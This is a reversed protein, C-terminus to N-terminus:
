SNYTDKLFYDDRSETMLVNKDLSDRSIRTISGRGSYPKEAATQSPLADRSTLEKEAEALVPAIEHNTISKYDRLYKEKFSSLNQDSQTNLFDSSSTPNKPLGDGLESDELEMKDDPQRGFLVKAWLEFGPAIRKNTENTDIKKSLVELMQNRLLNQRTTLHQEIIDRQKPNNQVNMILTTRKIWYLECSHSIVRVLYHMGPNTEPNNEDGFFSAENLVLLRCAAGRSKPKMMLETRLNLPIEEKKPFHPPPYVCIELQGKLVFFISGLHEREKFIDSGYPPYIKNKGISDHFAAIKPYDWADFLVIRSLFGVKQQKFAKIERGVSEIYARGDMVLLKAHTLAVCNATRQAKALVGAEGFFTNPKITSLMNASFHERTYKSHNVTTVGIEGELVYYVSSSADGYKVIIDLEKYELLRCNQALYVISEMPIKDRIEKINDITELFSAVVQHDSEARSQLPSKLINYVIQIIGQDLKDSSNSKRSFLVEKRKEAEKALNLTVMNSLAVIGMRHQLSAVHMAQRFNLKEPPAKSPSTPETGDKSTEALLPSSNAAKGPSFGAITLRVNRRLKNLLPSEGGFM